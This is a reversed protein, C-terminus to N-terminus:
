EILVTKIQFKFIYIKVKNRHRPENEEIRTPSTTCQVYTADVVMDYKGFKCKPHPYILKMDKFPGGRVLVRTDGSTPGAEPEISDVTLTLRGQGYQENL